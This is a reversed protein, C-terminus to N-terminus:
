EENNKILPWISIKTFSLAAISMNKNATCLITILSIANSAITAIRMIHVGEIRCSCRTVYM